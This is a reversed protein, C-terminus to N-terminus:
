YKTYKTTTMKHKTLGILPQRTVVIVSIAIMLFFFLREPPRRVVPLADLYTPLAPQAFCRRMTKALPRGNGFTGVALPVSACRNGASGVTFPRMGLIKTAKVSAVAV